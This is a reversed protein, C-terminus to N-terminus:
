VPTRNNDGDVLDQKLLTEWSVTAINLHYRVNKYTIPYNCKDGDTSAQFKTESNIDCVGINSIALRKVWVLLDHISKTCVQIVGSRISTKM